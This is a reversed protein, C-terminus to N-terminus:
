RGFWHDKIKIKDKGNRGKTDFFVYETSPLVPPEAYVLALAADQDGNATVRNRHKWTAFQGRQSLVSVLDNPWRDSLIRNFIVEIVARQGEIPQNNAEAWVIRKLLAEEDDTLSDIIDMYPNVEKLRLRAVEAETMYPAAGVVATEAYTVFSFLIAFALAIVATMAEATFSDRRSHRARLLDPRTIM